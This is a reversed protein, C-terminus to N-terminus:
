MTRLEHEYLEVTHLVGNSEYRCVYSFILNGNDDLGHSKSHVVVLNSVPLINHRVLDGTNFKEM